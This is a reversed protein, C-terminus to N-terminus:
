QHYFQFFRSPNADASFFHYLKLSHLNSTTSLFNFLKCTSPRTFLRPFTHCTHTHYNSPPFLFLHTNSVLLLLTIAIPLYPARFVLIVRLQQVSALILFRPDFSQTLYVM